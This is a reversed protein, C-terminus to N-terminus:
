ECGSIGERWQGAKNREEMRALSEGAHYSSRVLPASFVHPIGAERGWRAYQHFMDPHVYRRVPPHAKSPRMYQGITVMDCGVSKLDRLLERVHNDDEGLGVMFGSKSTIGKARVRRLLELSQGYDAQPRIGRYLAPHTEVNHNIIHPRARVVTDLASESGQFDPILVEMASEPLLRRVAELVAAFHGAGGDPLDDRTVSTIVVHNLRLEAAARAVREAEDPDPPGPRGPEINCFACNRTCREGLIMFTATGSSYCEHMNPCKAGKCVTALNLGDVLSRTRAFARSTPLPRKLWPPLRLPPEDWSSDRGPLSPAAVQLHFVGLFEQLFVKKVEAMSTSDDGLERHLSTAKVGPLGCPTVLEFLSLDDAINLSLGHSSVWRKVAIGISCIKRDEVWVGPRNDMRAAPLGFRALTRIVAEELEAFFRRLGGPRRDLRMVPYAVLQGPFHCTINGGRTSHVLEVGRSEFLDRAIPLNEEGGNRGFTIVPPHELLFLSGEGTELVHRGADEQLSCADAYSVLGLDFIRIDTMTNAATQSELFLASGSGCLLGPEVPRCM